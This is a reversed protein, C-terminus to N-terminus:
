RFELNLAYIEQVSRDRMLLPADDPTLGSWWAFVDSPQPFDKLSLIHEVLRDRMRVRALEGAGGRHQRFYLYKADHSWENYGLDDAEALASWRKTKADFLMLRMNNVTLASIYRGDPSVRPSFLGNSDPILSVKRTKWDLGYIAGEGLKDVEGFIISSGDPTWTPDAEYNESQVLLEPRGGLPSVSYIKWPSDFRVDQFVIQSGDPSWRPLYARAPPFTLQMKDRGDVRNVWLTMEPYSVYAVWKRDPSFDLPGASLGSLYPDFRRARLDYRQLEVRREEGIVFLRKGDGSPVPSSFRLPGSTVRSPGKEPGRFISGPEPMVWIAQLDANGAQFYYYKGDPSWYGAVIERSEGWKPLLRHINKGDADMEWIWNTNTKPDTVDLRIRRGDPSYRIGLVFGPLKALQHSESGDKNAVTISNGDAYVVHSGDPTWTALLAKISGVRHPAGDPLPQVWLEVVSDSGVAVRKSFLLQSRDPSVSSVALVDQTTPMLTTEGGAGSVQAIASGTTFPMGETFYLHVGDTVLSNFSNKPKGDNTIRVVNSVVPLHPQSRWYAVCILVLALACGVVAIRWILRYGSIPEPGRNPAAFGADGPLRGEVPAIFRYGRRTLTEVFTPHSASDGLAERLRKIATNLGTEFDVFTEKEWLAARLEERSVMEGPREILRLLVQYPQDQLHLKVGSKRLEGTRADLEFLGFRYISATRPVLHVGWAISFHSV